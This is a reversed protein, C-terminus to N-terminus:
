APDRVPLLIPYSVLPYDADQVAGPGAILHRHGPACCGILVADDISDPHREMWFDLLDRVRGITVPLPNDDHRM